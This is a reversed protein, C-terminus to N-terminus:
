ISIRFKKILIFILANTKKICNPFQEWFNSSQLFTILETILKRDQSNKQM